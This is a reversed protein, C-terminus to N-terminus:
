EEELEAYHLNMVARHEEIPQGILLHETCVITGDRRVVEKVCEDGAKTVEKFQQSSIKIAWYWRPRAGAAKFKIRVYEKPRIRPNSFRGWNMAEDDPLCSTGFLLGPV